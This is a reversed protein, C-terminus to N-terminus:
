SVREWLLCLHYLSMHCVLSFQLVLLASYIGPNLRDVMDILSSSDTGTCVYAYLSCMLFLLRLRDVMKILWSSELAVAGTILSQTQPCNKKEM